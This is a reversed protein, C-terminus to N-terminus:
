THFVVLREHTLILTAKPGYSTLVRGIMSVFDSHYGRWRVVAYTRAQSYRLGCDRDTFDLDVGQPHSEIYDIAQGSDYALATAVSFHYYMEGTYDKLWLMFARPIRIGTMDVKRASVFGERVELPVIPM